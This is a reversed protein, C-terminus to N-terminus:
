RVDRTVNMEKKKSRANPYNIKFAAGSNRLDYGRFRVHLVRVLENGANDNKFAVKIHERIGDEARGLGKGKKWGMKEMLKKGFGDGDPACYCIEMHM